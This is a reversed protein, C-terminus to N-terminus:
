CRDNKVQASLRKFMDAKAENALIEVQLM